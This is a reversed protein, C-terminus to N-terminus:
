ELAAVRYAGGEQVLRVAKGEGLPFEASSGRILPAGSLARRARVLRERSQPDRGFDEKLRDPTYRTRWSEALLGWAAPFDGRDLADLFATLALAPGGQDPRADDVRWQGSERVLSLGRASAALTEVAQEIETARENRAVEDAYRHSFAEPSVRGRVDAALLAYADPLRGERLALAYARGVDDPGSVTRCAAVTALCAFACWGSLKM